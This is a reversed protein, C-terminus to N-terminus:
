TEKTSPQVSCTVAAGARTRLASKGSSRLGLEELSRWSGRSLAHCVGARLRGLQLARRARHRRLEAQVEAAQPGARAGREPRQGGRRAEPGPGTMGGTAPWGRPGAPTDELPSTGQCGGRCCFNGGATRSWTVRSKRAHGSLAEERERTARAPFEKEVPMDCGSNLLRQYFHM